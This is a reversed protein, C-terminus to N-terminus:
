TLSAKRRDRLCFPMWIQLSHPLSKLFFNSRSWCKRIWEPSFGKSHWIHEFAKVWFDFRLLCKFVWSTQVWQNLTHKDRLYVRINSKCKLYPFVAMEVQIYLSLPCGRGLFVKSLCWFETQFYSVTAWNTGVALCKISLARQLFVHFDMRTLLYWVILCYTSCIQTARM